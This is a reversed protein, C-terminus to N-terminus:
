STSRTTSDLAGGGLSSLMAAELLGAASSRCHIGDRGSKSPISPISCATARRLDDVM